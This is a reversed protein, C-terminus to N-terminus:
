LQGVRAEVARNLEFALLSQGARPRIGVAIGPGEREFAGDDIGLSPTEADDEYPAPLQGGVM